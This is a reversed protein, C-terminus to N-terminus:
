IQDISKVPDAHIMLILEGDEKFTYRGGDENVTDAWVTREGDLGKNIVYKRKRPM